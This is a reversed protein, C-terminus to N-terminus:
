VQATPKLSLYINSAIQELDQETHYKKEPILRTRLIFYGLLQTVFNFFLNDLAKNDKIEPFKKFFRQTKLIIPLDNHLLLKKIQDKVVTDTLVVNTLITVLDKNGVMFEFRDHVVFSIVAYLGQDKQSELIEDLLKVTFRPVINKFLPDLIKELLEHKSHFYKFLVAQSVQAAKAIENTSTQDYGKKAFLTIAADLVKIQSAPMNQTEYWKSLEASMM